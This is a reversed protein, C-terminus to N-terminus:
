RPDGTENLSDRTEVLRSRLWQTESFNEGAAALLQELAAARAGLGERNEPLSDLVIDTLHLAELPRGKRLHEWSRAILAPAGALEVLDSNISRQPAAYLETTSRYHFWGAYEEWVARVCWSTKGHGQGIAHEKPLEIEAMLQHVDKGANMGEITRDHIWQTAWRVRELQQAINARGRVPEGHGPVLLEPELAHVRDVAEIFRLASRIKDGRITYLNPLHGFIPGFLNGTFVIREHPMWVVLSDTTEGGPTALLEFHRGGHELEYHDDLLVDPVPDPPQEVSANRKGLLSGWLVGTRRGYFPALRNWYGRVVPWDSQAIIKANPALVVSGGIHDGHSQTFILVRVSADSVAAFRQRTREAEFVIGANLLVNGDDTEILYCNSIGHSGHIGPAVAFAPAADDGAMVLGALTPEQKSAM